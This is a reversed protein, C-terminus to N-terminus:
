ISFSIGSAVTTGPTHVQDAAALQEQKNKYWVGGTGDKFAQKRFVHLEQLIDSDSPFFQRRCFQYLIDPVFAAGLVLLLHMYFNATLFMANPILYYEASSESIIFIGILYIAASILLGVPYPWIWQRIGLSWKSLVIVVVYTSLFSTFTWYDYMVLPGGLQGEGFM